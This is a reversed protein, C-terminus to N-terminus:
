LPGDDGFNSIRKLRVAFEKKGRWVLPTFPQVQQCPLLGDGQSCVLVGKGKM